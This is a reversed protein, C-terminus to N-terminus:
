SSVRTADSRWVWRFSVAGRFGCIPKLAVIGLKPHSRAIRSQFEWPFREFRRIGIQAVCQEDVVKKRERYAIWRANGCASRIDSFEVGLSDCCAELMNHGSTKSVM